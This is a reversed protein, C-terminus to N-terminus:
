DCVDCLRVQLVTFAIGGSLTFMVMGLVPSEILLPSPVSAPMQVSVPPATTLPVLADANAIPAPPRIWHSVAPTRPPRLPVRGGKRTGRADLAKSVVPMMGEGGRPTKWVAAEARTVACDPCKTM